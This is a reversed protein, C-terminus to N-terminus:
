KTINKLYFWDTKLATRIVPKNEMFPIAVDTEETIIDVSVGPIAFAKWESITNVLYVAFRQVHWKQCSRPNLVIFAKM